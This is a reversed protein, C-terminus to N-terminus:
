ARLVGRLSHKKAEVITVPVIRGLWGEPGGEARPPMVVNVAQGYPDRGQWSEGGPTGTAGDHVGEHSEPTAMGPKRSMGDLLVMTHLGVMNRLCQETYDNQWEQLRALRAAKEAADLKGPLMEARTGPRDSYCFSFSAAFGVARMASLTDEFDQETEGPFGVIIDTSLQIDPRAAKLRHVIDMYRAMDYKRGMAKLIRDSGSQMPLHLRPCLNDLTGFADIVEPAIDKPHPTVFRLRALGPLAAVRHLLEAFTVAKGDGAATAMTAQRAAEADQGYSNVNQGLLTIEKAGREVLEACERVVADAARSKQRGRTYPVICYACFNDCGQMINVFASPPVPGADLQADREPYEESFDLLSLRLGPEACLREIAQPAMSSGDGGFVLRVQPFRTFFGSGIQQAVCGGVVAFADPLKRTAQRIRGLVSYVKQEPKDRVSCTNVINVRAKGLPAETFGRAVLARSLWDSDNVNMQCGFTLIHFTRDSM